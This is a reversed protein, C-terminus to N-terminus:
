GRPANEPDWALFQITRTLQASVKGANAKTPIIIDQKEADGIDPESVSPESSLSSLSKLKSGGKRSRGATWFVVTIWDHSQRM